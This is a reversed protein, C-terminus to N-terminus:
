LLYRWLEIEQIKAYYGIMELCVGSTNTKCSECLTTLVFSRKAQLGKPNTLLFALPTQKRIDSINTLINKNASLM